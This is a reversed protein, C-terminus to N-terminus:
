LLLLGPSFEIAIINSFYLDLGVDNERCVFRLTSPTLFDEGLVEKIFYQISYLLADKRLSKIVLLKDFSSDFNQDIAGPLTWANERKGQLWQFKFVM